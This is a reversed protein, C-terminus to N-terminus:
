LADAVVFTSGGIFILDGRGARMRAADVASKVDRYAEGNLGFEAATKQLLIENMARPVSAKTFYYTANKPFLPLVRKLDKDNVFGVVMHLNDKPTSRIQNMVHILGHENHGTDCVVLPDSGIVQWRGALGTNSIVKSIGTLLNKDLLNLKDKLIEFSAGVTILNSSQYDGGLPIEGEYKKGSIIGSLKFKRLGRTSVPLGLSCDFFDQAFVIPSNNEIAKKLFVSDTKEGKEGIVVPIEKKIIGAKEAAIKELTDGLLDMHDFGINTIVSLLPTIINTSDLRGGLGTEVVAIDINESAFYSFALAVSLEFFSPRLTEIFEINQTVFDVVKEEPIMM